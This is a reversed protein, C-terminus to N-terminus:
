FTHTVPSKNVNVKNTKKCRKNTVMQFGDNSNLRYHSDKEYISTMCISTTKECMSSNPADNSMTGIDGVESETVPQKPNLNIDSKNTGKLEASTQVSHISPVYTTSPGDTTNPTNACTDADMVTVFLDM